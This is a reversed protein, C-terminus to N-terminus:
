YTGVMDLDNTALVDFVCANRNAQDVHACAVEADERTIMSEGLRRQRGSATESITPMSCREPHQPGDKNHFLKPESSHVQWEKGFENVDEMITSNDRALLMGSPYSGMLGSSEHFDGYTSSEVNVRVFEKFTKFTVAEGNGFDVKFQHQHNNLWRFRIKYEGALKKGLAKGNKLNTRGPNGNFWYKLGDGGMVEFTDEGVRLAATEIYSWWTDIKTRIHLEMGLGGAFNPNHLLVLDCAGHFDYETGNWTM